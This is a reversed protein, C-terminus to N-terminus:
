PSRLRRPGRLHQPLIQIVVDDRGVETTGPSTPVLETVLDPPNKLVLGLWHISLSFFKNEKQPPPTRVGRKLCSCTNKGPFSFSDTVSNVHASVASIGSATSHDPHQNNGNGILRIALYSLLERYM